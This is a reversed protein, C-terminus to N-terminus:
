GVVVGWLWRGACHVEYEGAHGRGEEDRAGEGAFGEREAADESGHECGDHVGHVGPVEGEHQQYGEVAQAGGRGLDLVVDLRLEREGAGAGEAAFAGPVVDLHAEQRM